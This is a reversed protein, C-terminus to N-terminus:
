WRRSNVDVQLDDLAFIVHYDFTGTLGTRDRIPTRVRGTLQYVLQEMSSGKGISHAVHNADVYLQSTGAEDRAESLRPNHGGNPRSKPRFLTVNADHASPGYVNASARQLQRTCFALCSIRAV